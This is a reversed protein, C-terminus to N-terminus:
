GMPYPASLKGPVLSGPLVGWPPPDPPEPGLLARRLSELADRVTQAQVAERGARAYLRRRLVQTGDPGALGLFCLGVPKEPTGGDPGAIGTAALRADPTKYVVGQAVLESPFQDFEVGRNNGASVVERGNWLALSFDPGLGRISIQQSRGRVRQATVGPLRALSDAISLDPLKGIDEASIAEVISTENKKTNLSNQISGRIGSVKVTNLRAEDDDQQEGTEVMEDPDAQQAQAPAAWLLMAGTAVGALLQLRISDRKAM